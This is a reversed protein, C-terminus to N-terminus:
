YFFSERMLMVILKIFRISLGLFYVIIYGCTTLAGFVTAIACLLSVLSNNGYVGLMVLFEAVFASTGSFFYKRFYIFVYYYCIIANSAGFWWTVYFVHIIVIM